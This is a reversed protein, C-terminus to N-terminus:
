CFLNKKGREKKRERTSDISFFFGSIVMKYVAQKQVQKDVQCSHIFSFHTDRIHLANPDQAQSKDVGAM